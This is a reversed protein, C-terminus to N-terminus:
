MDLKLRAARASTSEEGGDSLDNARKPRGGGGFQFTAMLCLLGLLMLVADSKYCRWSKFHCLQM